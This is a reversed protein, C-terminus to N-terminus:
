SARHAGEGAQYVTFYLVPSLGVEEGLSSCFTLFTVIGTQGLKGSIPIQRPIINFVYIRCSHLSM